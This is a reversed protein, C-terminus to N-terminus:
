GGDRRSAWESSLVVEARGESKNLLDKFTDSPDDKSFVIAFVQM